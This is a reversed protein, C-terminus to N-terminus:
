IRHVKMLNTSGMVSIPAGMIIVLSDGRRVMGEKLLLRDVQAILEDTNEIPEMIKPIVGWYLCLRRKIEENPTFAIIPVVPRDKSILLATSGSQTFAVIAKAGIKYATNAAANSVAEPFSLEKDLEYGKYGRKHIISSEATDIIRAMMEVSEIPYKGVATEGSLMVADTGDFIANAVDSAEARTPIPHQIMSELMQTATIVPKKVENARRIVEKQIIPVHEPSIEVGLDGRAIMVGDGEKLIEDLSEIAQPKELKAIVHIEKQSKSIIGKVERIDEPRIVFSIGFYDIGEGIGFMIDERDKDTLSPMGIDVGPLNIGKNDRLLGGIIVKCRVERERREVVQFRLLGDDLLIIDGVDVDGTLGSYSTSVIKDTGIVRDTTIIFETDKNLYVSGKEFRGIRIKPGQLDFLIAVPKLVRKSVNHIHRIVEEHSERTGHSSNLRAVDMGAMILREIMEESHSSPGITCIIKTKRTLIGM